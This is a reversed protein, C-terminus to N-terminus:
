KYSKNKLSNIEKETLFRWFGRRLGVKTLGAFYVRDLKEVEYGLHEFMRRVVRNRGSHMEVGVEKRNNGVFAVEDAHIEGDELEFGELLKNLDDENAPRDLFVHYIKSKNYSPHTLEKTLDGDNTILLVGTTMKDLRGVPYVRQKVDGRLLDIVNKDNHPDDVSTIYGKPKNMVIYVKKEGQLRKGEFEITEGMNVKYGLETVVVKNVTIQGSSILEDAERRSCVGSQAIFRNLRIPANPDSPKAPAGKRIESKKPKRESDLRESYTASKGFFVQRSFPDVKEKGSERLHRPKRQNPAYTKDSQGEKNDRGSFKNDRKSSDTKDTNFRPKADRSATPRDNKADLSRRSQTSKEDSKSDRKSFFSHPAKENKM